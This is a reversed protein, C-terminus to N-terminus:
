LTDFVGLVFRLFLDFFVALLLVVFEFFELLLHVKWTGAGGWCVCEAGGMSTALVAALRGVVSYCVLPLLFASSSALLSASSCSLCILSAPLLVPSLTM